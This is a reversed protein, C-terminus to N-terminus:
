QKKVSRSKLLRNQSQSRSQSLARLPSHRLRNLSRSRNNYRSRSSFLSHSICQSHLSHSICQSHLSNCLNRSYLSHRLPSSNCLSSRRIVFLNKWQRRRQSARSPLPMRHNISTSRLAPPKMSEMRQAPRLISGIFVFKVWATTTLVTSTTKLTM